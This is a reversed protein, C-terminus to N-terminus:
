YIILVFFATTVEEVIVLWDGYRERLEAFTYMISVVVNLLITFANVYDYFRGIRDLDNGVEIIEFVRKRRKYWKRNM